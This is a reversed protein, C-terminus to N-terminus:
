QDRDAVLYTKRCKRNTALSSGGCILEEAFCICNHALKAILKCQNHSITRESNALRYSNKCIQMNIPLM